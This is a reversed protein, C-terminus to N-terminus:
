RTRYILAFLIKLSLAQKVGFKNYCSLIELRIIFFFVRACVCLALRMRVWFVCISWLKWCQIGRYTKCFWFGSFENFATNWRNYFVFVFWDTFSKNTHHSKLCHFIVSFHDVDFTIQLSFDQFSIAISRCHFLFNRLPFVLFSKTFSFMINLSHEMLWCDIEPYPDTYLILLFQDFEALTVSRLLDTYLWVLWLILLWPLCFCWGNHAHLIVINVRTTTKWFFHVRNLLYNNSNDQGFDTM